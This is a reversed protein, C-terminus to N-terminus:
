QPKYEPSSMKEIRQANRRNLEEKWRTSAQGGTSRLWYAIREWPLGNARASNIAEELEMRFRREAEQETLNGDEETTGDGGRCGYFAGDCPNTARESRTM